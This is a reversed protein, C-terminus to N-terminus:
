RQFESGRDFLGSSEPKEAADDSAAAVNVGALLKGADAGVATGKSVCTAVGEMGGLM